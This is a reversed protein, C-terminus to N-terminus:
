AKRQTAGSDRSVPSFVLSEKSIPEIHSFELCANEIAEAKKASPNRFGYALQDLYGVTTGALLALRRWDDRSAQERWNLLNTSM